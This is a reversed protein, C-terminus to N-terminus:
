DHCKSCSPGSNYSNGHCYTINCYTNASASNWDSVKNVNFGHLTDDKRATHNPAPIQSHCAATNCAHNYGTSSGKLDTNHCSASSACSSFNNALLASLEANHFYGNNNLTHTTSFLSWVNGHCSINTCSPEGSIGGTLLSGHCSTCNGATNPFRFNKAHKITSFPPLETHDAAPIPNHCSYCSYRYNYDTKNATYLTGNGHCDSVGCNANYNGSHVDKHHYRDNVNLIHTDSFVSWQNDHCTFCSIGGTSDGTLGTGHCSVRDCSGAPIRYNAGHYINSFPPKEPHPYKNLGSPKNEYAYNCAFLFSMMSTMILSFFHM